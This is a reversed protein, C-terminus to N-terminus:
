LNVTSHLKKNAQPIKPIYKELESYIIETNGEYTVVVRKLTHAISPIAQFGKLHKSHRREQHPSLPHAAVKKRERPRRIPIHHRLNYYVNSCVTYLKVDDLSEIRYYSNIKRGKLKKTPKTRNCNTHKHKIASKVDYCCRHYIPM